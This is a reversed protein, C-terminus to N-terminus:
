APMALFNSLLRAGTAASREPHFQMGWALGQGVIAAFGPAQTPTFVQWGLAILLGAAVSWGAWKLYSRSRRPAAPEARRGDSLNAPDTASWALAAHLHLFQTYFARAAADNLVLEELRRTEEPTLRNEVAAACLDRIEPTTTDHPNM